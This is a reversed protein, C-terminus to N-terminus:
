LGRSTLWDILIQAIELNNDDLMMMHENGRIPGPSGKYLSGRTLNPLWAVRIDGGAATIQQVETACSAVPDRAGAFDGYVALIPIHKLTNIQDPTLNALCGLEIGIIAKVKCASATTWPFCGSNSSLAAQTPFPSSESHGMLVAGGLKKALEAMQTPTNITAGLTSNVDPIVMNYFQLDSGNGVGVNKM